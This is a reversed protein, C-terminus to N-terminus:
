VGKKRVRLFSKKTYIINQLVCIIIKTDNSYDHHIYRKTNDAHSKNHRNIYKNTFTPMFKNMMMRFLSITRAGLNPTQVMEKKSEQFKLTSLYMSMKFNNIRYIHHLRM